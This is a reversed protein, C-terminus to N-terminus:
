SRERHECWCLLSSRATITHTLVVTDSLASIFRKVDGGPSWTSGHKDKQKSEKRDKQSRSLWINQGRYYFSPACPLLIHTKNNLCREPQKTKRLRWGRSYFLCLLFAPSSYNQKYTAQKGINIIHGQLCWFLCDKKCTSIAHRFSRVAMEASLSPTPM